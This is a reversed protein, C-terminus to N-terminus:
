SFPSCLASQGSGIRRLFLVEALNARLLYQSVSSGPHIMVDVKSLHRFIILLVFNHSVLNGISADHAASAGLAAGNGGDLFARGLVLDIGIQADIAASASVGAGNTRGLGSRPQADM